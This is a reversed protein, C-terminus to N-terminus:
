KALKENLARLEAEKFAIQADVPDTPTAQASTPKSLAYKVGRFAKCPIIIQTVGDETMKPFAADLVVCKTVFYDALWPHVVDLVKPRANAPVAIVKQFSVWDNWDKVTYLELLMDFAALGKGTFVLTSGTLGYGGREDWKRPSGNNGSITLIGPTRTGGLMAFTYSGPNEIPNTM